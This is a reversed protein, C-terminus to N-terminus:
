FHLGWLRDMALAHSSAEMTAASGGAERVVALFRQLDLSEPTTTSAAVSGRPTRYEITGFLGTTRGAARLISDVLFSTTTKGNTGTIGVLEMAAGPRHFFNASAIALTKRIDRTQIWAVHDPITRADPARGAREFIENWASNWPRPMESIVAMAGREIADFVFLNGDTKEGHIAFFAAGEVVQRSSYALNSVEAHANGAPLTAPTGALLEQLNMAANDLIPASGPASLKSEAHTDIQM